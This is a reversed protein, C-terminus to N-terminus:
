AVINGAKRTWLIAFLRVRELFQALLHGCRVEKDGLDVHLTPTQRM